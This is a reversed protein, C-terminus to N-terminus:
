NLLSEKIDTKSQFMLVEIARLKSIPYHFGKQIEVFFQDFEKLDTIKKLDQLYKLYASPKNRYNNGVALYLRLVPNRHLESDAKCWIKISALINLKLSKARM